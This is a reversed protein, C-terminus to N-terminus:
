AAILLTSVHEEKAFRLTTQSADVLSAVGGGHVINRGCANLTTLAELSHRVGTQQNIIFPICLHAKRSLNNKKKTIVHCNHFARASSSAQL